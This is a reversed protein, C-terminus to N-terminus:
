LEVEIQLNMENVTCYTISATKGKLYEWLTFTESAKSPVLTFYNELGSETFM